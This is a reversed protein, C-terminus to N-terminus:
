VFTSWRYVDIVSIETIKPHGQGDMDGSEVDLRKDEQRVLQM